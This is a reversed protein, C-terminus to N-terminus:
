RTADAPRFLFVDLNQSGGLYEWRLMHRGKNLHVVAPRGVATAIRFWGWDDRTRCWGGTGHMRVAVHPGPVARGDIRVERDVVSPKGAARVWVQYDGTKPVSFRWEAWQIPGDIHCFASGGTAAVKQVRRGKRRSQARPGPNDADLVVDNPGPRFTRPM